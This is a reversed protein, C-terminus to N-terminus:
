STKRITPPARLKELALRLNKVHEKLSRRYVVINDMYIVMFENLYPRFLNNMLTCFTAPANTLSFPMVLYEYSGYRTVCATKAEDGEVIRVQYYGSRLDM